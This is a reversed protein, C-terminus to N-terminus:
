KHDLIIVEMGLKKLLSIFAFRCLTQDSWTEQFYWHSSHKGFIESNNEKQVCFAAEQLELFAAETSEVYLEIFDYQKWHTKSNTGPRGTQLHWNKALRCPLQMQKIASSSHFVKWMTFVGSSYCVANLM